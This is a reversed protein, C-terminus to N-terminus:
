KSQTHMSEGDYEPFYDELHSVMIKEKLIDKKNMFLIPTTNEFWRCTVIKKFLALSEEM